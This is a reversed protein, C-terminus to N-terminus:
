NNQMQSSIVDIWQGLKSQKTWSIRQPKISHFVFLPFLLKHMTNFWFRISGFHLYLLLHNQQSKRTIFLFLPIGIICLYLSEPSHSLNSCKMNLHKFKIPMTACYLHSVVVTSIVWLIDESIAHIMMIFSHCYFVMTTDIVAAAGGDNGGGDSDFDCDSDDDVM